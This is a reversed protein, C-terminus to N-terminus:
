VGSPVWNLLIELIPVVFIEDTDSQLSATNQLANNNLVTKEFLKSLSQSSNITIPQKKTSARNANGGPRVKLKPKVGSAM